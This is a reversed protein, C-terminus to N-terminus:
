LNLTILQNQILVKFAFWGIFMLIVSHMLGAKVKTKAMKGAVLGTFFGQVALMHLFLVSLTDLDISFSFMESSVDLTGFPYFFTQFLIFVVLVFIIYAAYCIMLYPRMAGEREKKLDLLQQVHKETSEFIDELNGGSREAELILITARQAMQTNIASQFDSMAKSFPIGWSIKSSMKRLEPTLPGYHRKAAEKIARPLSMGTRQANSIERLLYPLNEDIRAQRREERYVILFTPIGMSIIIALIIFDNIDLITILDTSSIYDLVGLVVIVLGAFVAIVWYIIDVSIQFEKTKIEVEDKIAM